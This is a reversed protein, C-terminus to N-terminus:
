DETASDSQSPPITTLETYQGEKLRPRPKWTDLLMIIGVHVLLGGAMLSAAWPFGARSTLTSGILPGIMQGLSFSSAMLSSLANVSEDAYEGCSRMMDDMVPTMSMSEGIGFIILAVIMQGMGLRGMNDVQLLPSPGILLFGLLQLMLGGVIVARPGCRERKAVMGIIPCSLTYSTMAVSFLMGIADPTSALGMRNAHDGLTPELFAYDSNALMAAVAIVMVQPNRLLTRMPVDAKEEGKSLRYADPPMYSYLLMAAPAVAFGLVIFPMSFGGASFLFGGLPPGIMYGLGTSIECIGLYLTVHETDLDAIIAYMATEELASGIGQILRMTVCWAAFPWGAPLASAVSFLISSVSVTCIGWIYVWVKGHKNMLRAAIPSCLFIVAAFIAFVLGVGDDGMGKAKAEQPFFSALVSYVSHCFLNAINTCIMVLMKNNRMSSKVTMRAAASGGGTALSGGSSSGSLFPSSTGSRRESTPENSTGGAGNSSRAVVCAGVLTLGTSSASLLARVAPARAPTFACGSKM